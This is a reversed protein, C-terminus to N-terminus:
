EKGTIQKCIEKDEVYGKGSVDGYVSSHYTYTKENYEQKKEVNDVTYQTGDLPLGGVSELNANGEKTWSGDKNILHMVSFVIRATMNGAEGGYFIGVM